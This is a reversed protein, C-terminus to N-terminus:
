VQLAHDFVMGQVLALSGVLGVALLAGVALSKGLERRQLGLTRKGSLWVLTVAMGVSCLGTLINLSAMVSLPLNTTYLWGQGYLLLMLILFILLALFADRKGYGQVAEHYARNEWMM